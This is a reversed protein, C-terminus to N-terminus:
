GVKDTFVLSGQRQTTPGHHGSQYSHNYGVECHGFYTILQVAIIFM